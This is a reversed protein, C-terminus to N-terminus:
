SEVKAADAAEKAADILQYIRARTLKANRALVSVGIGTNRAGVVLENVTTTAENFADLARQRREGAEQLAIVYAEQEPTINANQEKLM